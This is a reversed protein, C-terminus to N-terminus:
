RALSVPLLARAFREPEKVGREAFWRLEQEKAPGQADPPLLAASALRAASAHLRAGIAELQQAGSTYYGSSRATDGELSAVAGRLVSALGSAWAIGEAELQRAASVAGPLQGSGLATAGDLYLYIVRTIQIRLLGSSKVRRVEEEFRARAGRADGQYLFALVVGHFGWFHQLFYGGRTFSSLAARVEGDVGAPRGEALELWPGLRVRFNTLAYLDNRVEAAARAEAILGRVAPLEGLWVLSLALYQQATTNEWTMGPCKERFIAVAREHLVKAEAFRGTGMPECGAMLANLGEIHVHPHQALLERLQALVTRCAEAHPKGITAHYGAELALARAVRYPEGCDLALRLHTFQYSTGLVPDVISFGKAAAWFADVRSLLEPDVEAATRLPFRYGRLTIRLRGMAAQLLAARATKPRKVGLELLVGDLVAIGEDLRGTYLLQEAALQRLELSRRRAVSRASESAAGDVVLARALELYAQSAEQGRGAGALADARAVKLREVEAAPASAIAKEYLRVARDFALVSAAKAAAQDAAKWARERDGAQEWWDFLTEADSSGTSELAQALAALMERQRDAPLQARLAQGIREDYLVLREGSSAGGVSLLRTAKLSVLPDSLETDLKAAHWAVLRPVPHRAVAVFELLRRSPASLAELRAKMWAELTGPTVTAADAGAKVLTALVELLYPSGHSEAALSAVQADIAQAGLLQRALAAAETAELPWLTLRQVLARGSVMAAHSSELFAKVVPSPEADSAITRAAVVVHMAPVEGSLLSAFLAASDADGWQLDDIALVVPHKSTLRALLEALARFGRRRLEQADAVEPGLRRATLLEDLRRLVPFLRVLADFDRPVVSEVLAPPQTALYACLADVVGDFAKFPVTETEGCRGALVVAGPAQQEVSQLYAKLLVSKGLGSEGEILSLGLQHKRLVHTFAGRLTELHSARGVLEAASAEPPVQAVLSSLPRVLRRQLSPGDPREEPASRLLDLCLAELDPPIGSTFQSPPPVSQEQRRLRMMGPQGDFPVQGTLVEYLLVGVSYWDTSEKVAQGVSQEPSMYAPTGVVLDQSHRAEFEDLERVLGFDLLVLRGESSVLVNSPKIDRHLKGAAHLACVGDVLQGLVHRLRTLASASLPARVLAPPAPVPLEGASGGTMRIPGLSKTDADLRARLEITSTSSGSSAKPSERRAARQAEDLLVYDLFTVGEVYEMTFFWRDQDSLLEYLTVLNPHVVNQLARFERKFRILAEPSFKSLLKVAVFANRENDYAQFVRGFSGAGLLRTPTYRRTGTFEDAATPLREAM